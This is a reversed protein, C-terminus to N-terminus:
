MKWCVVIFRPHPSITYVLTDPVNRENSVFNVGCWLDKSTVRLIIRMGTGATDM